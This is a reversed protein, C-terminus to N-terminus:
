DPFLVTNINPHLTCIGLLAIFNLAISNLKHKLTHQPVCLDSGLCRALAGLLCCSPQHLHERVPPVQRVRPVGLWATPAYTLVIIHYDLFCLYNLRCLATLM